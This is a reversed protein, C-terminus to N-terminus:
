FREHWVVRESVASDIAQRVTEARARDLIEVEDRGPAVRSRVQALRWAGLLEVPGILDGVASSVFRARAEGKVEDLYVDARETSGGWDRVVDSLQRGDSEVCLRTEHLVDISAGSTLELGIRTWELQRSDIMRGIAQETGAAARFDDFSVELERNTAGLAGAATAVREALEVAWGQLRGSCVIDVWYGAIAATGGKALAAGQNTTPLRDARRRIWEAWETASLAWRALWSSLEDASLLKRKYRFSQEPTMSPSSSVAAASGDDDGKGDDDGEGAIEGLLGLQEARALVDRWRYTQGFASFVPRELVAEISV